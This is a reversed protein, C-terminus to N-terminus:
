PARPPPSFDHGAEFSGARILLRYQGGPRLPEPTANKVSPKMGPVNVGYAVSRVPASRSDATLEWLAHPSQNTKGDDVTVVRVSTLRLPRSFMFVVPDVRAAGARDRRAFAGRPPMSRHSIQIPDPRFRDKNLYISFGGLLLALAILIGTKKTM